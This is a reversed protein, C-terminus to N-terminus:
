RLRGDTRASGPTGSTNGGPGSENRLAAAYWDPREVVTEGLATVRFVRTVRVTRDGFPATYELRYARVVGRGDIRAVLTADTPRGVLEPTDLRAPRRLATSRLRYVTTGDADIAEVVRMRFASFLSVLRTHETPDVLPGTPGPVSERQYGVGQEGDFRLLAHGGEYWLEVRPAVARVPYTATARRTQVLHYADAGPAVRLRTTTSRLPGGATSITTNTVLTYATSLLTREHAAALAVPDTVGARNVGPALARETPPGDTPVPAPTVTPTGFGAVGGCGALALLLALGLPPAAGPRM